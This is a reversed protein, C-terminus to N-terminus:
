DGYGFLVVTNLLYLTALGLSVGAAIGFIRSRPHLVLGTMVLGALGFWSSERSKFGFESSPM